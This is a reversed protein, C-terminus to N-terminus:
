YSGRGRGGRGGGRGGRDGGGRGGRDGGGRSTSIEVKIRRGGVEEGNAALAENAASEEAFGIICCGKPRGEDNMLLKVECVTGFKSFFDKMDGERQKFSMNGVFVKSKPYGTSFGNSSNQTAGKKGSWEQPKKFAPNSNEYGGRGSDGGKPGGGGKGKSYSCSINRGEMNLNQSENLVNKADETSYFSVFGVGKSTGDDKKLIKVRNVKGLKGFVDKLDDETASYPLGRVFLENSEPNEGEPEREREAPRGGKKPSNDDWRKKQLMPEETRTSATSPTDGWGDSSGWGNM